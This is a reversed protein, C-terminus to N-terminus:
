RSTLSALVTVVAFYLAGGVLSFVLGAVLCATGCKLALKIMEGLKMRVGIVLVRQIDESSSANAVYGSLATGPRSVDPDAKWTDPELELISHSM